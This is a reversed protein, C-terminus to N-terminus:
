LITEVARSVTVVFEVPLGDLEAQVLIQAGHTETSHVSLDDMESHLRSSILDAIGADTVAPAVYAEVDDKSEIEVSGSDGYADAWIEDEPVQDTPNVSELRVIQGTKKVRVLDGNKFTM